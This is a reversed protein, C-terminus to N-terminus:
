VTQHGYKAIYESVFLFTADTPMDLLQEMCTSIDNPPYDGGIHGHYKVVTKDQPLPDAISEDYVYMKLGEVTPLPQNKDVAVIYGKDRLAEYGTPSTEWYPSKWIKQYPLEWKREFAEEVANILTDIKDRSGVLEGKMHILGHPAIEIWDLGRVISAWEKVKDETTKKFVFAQDLAPTFLTVKFNPFHERIMTLYEMGPKTPSFDDLDVVIEMSLREATLTNSITGSM